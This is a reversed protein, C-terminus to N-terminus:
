RRTGQGTTSLPGNQRGPSYGSAGPHGRRSGLRQMQHGPSYGSAGPQGPKSGHQQMMHGPTKNSTSSQAFSAATSGLVLGAAAIIPIIRASM